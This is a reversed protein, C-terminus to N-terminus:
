GLFLLCNEDDNMFEAIVEKNNDLIQIIALTPKNGCTLQIVKPPCGFLRSMAEFDNDKTLVAFGNAKAYSWIEADETNIDLNLQAVHKSATFFKDLIWVLRPSLNNDVLIKM